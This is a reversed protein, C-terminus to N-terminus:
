AVGYRPARLCPERPPTYGDEPPSASIPAPSILPALNLLPAQEGLLFLHLSPRRKWVQVPIGFRAHIANIDLYQCQMNPRGRSIAAPLGRLSDDQDLIVMELTDDVHTVTLADLYM